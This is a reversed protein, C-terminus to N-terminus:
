GARYKIASEKGCSDMVHERGQIGNWGTGGCEVRM